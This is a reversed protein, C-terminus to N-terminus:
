YEIHFDSFYCPKVPNSIIRDVASYSNGEKLLCTFSKINQEDGEAFVEVENNPCNRVWGTLHLGRANAATWARFGVGQVRGYVFIHVAALPATQDTSKM